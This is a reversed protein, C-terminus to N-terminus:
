RVAHRRPAGDAWSHEHGRLGEDGRREVASGDEAVRADASTALELARELGVPGPAGAGVLELGHRTVKPQGRQPAEDLEAQVRGVAGHGAGEREVVLHEVGRDREARQGRAEARETVDRRQVVAARAHRQRGVERECAAGLALWRELHGLPEVRVVVVEDGLDPGARREAQGVVADHALVDLRPGLADDRPGDDDPRHREEQEGLGVGVRGLPEAREVPEVVGDGRVHLQQVGERLRPRRPDLEVLRAEDRVRADRASTACATVWAYV